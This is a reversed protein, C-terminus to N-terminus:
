MENGNWFYGSLIKSRRGGLQRPSLISVIYLWDLLFNSRVSFVEPVWYALIVCTSPLLGDSLSWDSLSHLGFRGFFAHNARGLVCGRAVALVLWWGILLLLAPLSFLRLYLFSCYTAYFIASYYLGSIMILTM